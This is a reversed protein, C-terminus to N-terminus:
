RKKKGGREVWRPKEGREERKAAVIVTEEGNATATEEKEAAKIEGSVTTKMSEGEGQGRM